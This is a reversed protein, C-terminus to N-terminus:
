LSEGVPEMDMSVRDETRAPSLLYTALVIAGAGMVAGLLLFGGAVVLAGVAAAVMISAPVAVNIGTFIAATMLLTGLAGAMGLALPVDMLMVAQWWELSDRSLVEGAVWSLGVGVLAGVLFIMATVAVVLIVAAAVAALILLAEGDGKGCSSSKGGGSPIFCNGSPACVPGCFFPALPDRVPTSVMSQSQPGTGTATTGPTVFAGPVREVRLSAPVSGACVPDSPALLRQEDPAMKSSVSYTRTDTVGNACRHVVDFRFPTLSHKGMNTVRVRMQQGALEDSSVPWTEICTATTCARQIPVDQALVLSPFLLAVVLTLMRMGPLHVM